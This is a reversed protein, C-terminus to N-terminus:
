ITAHYDHVHCPDNAVHIGYEDPQGYVTGGKVGAGALLCTFAKHWHNRGKGNDSWPTRGFETCIAVITEDLLGRQKLDRLLGALLRDVRAAKGRHQQMDGHADWNDSAGTDILEVVRVGREILRRALLCEYAFSPQDDRAVGYRQLSANGEQWVGRVCQAIPTHARRSAAVAALAARRSRRSQRVLAQESAAPLTPGPANVLRAGM